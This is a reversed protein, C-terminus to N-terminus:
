PAALLLLALLLIVEVPSSCGNEGPDDGGPASLILILSLILLEESGLRDGFLGRIMRYAGDGDTHTGREPSAKAPKEPLWDGATGSQEAHSKEPPPERSFRSGDYRPPLKYGRLGFERSQEANEPRGNRSYM